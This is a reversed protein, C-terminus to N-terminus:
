SNTDLYASAQKHEKVGYARSQSVIWEFQKKALESQSTEEYLLGLKSRLKYEIGIDVAVANALGLELVEIVRDIPKGQAKYLDSLLNYSSIDEPAASIAQTLYKQAADYDPQEGSMAQRAQQVSRKAAIQQKSWAELGTIPQLVIWKDQEQLESLMLVNDGMRLVPSKGKVIEDVTAMGQGGTETIDPLRYHNPITHSANVSSATAQEESGIVIDVQGIAALEEDNVKRSDGLHLIRKGGFEIIWVTNLPLFGRQRIVDAFGHETAIGEVKISGIQHIGPERYAPVGNFHYTADHDFHPHTVLVADAQINKPYNYGMWIRSNFPDIVVSSGDDAVFRFSAHGIYEIRDGHREQAAYANPFGVICLLLLLSARIKM